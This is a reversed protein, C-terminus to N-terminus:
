GRPGMSAFPRSPCGPAPPCKRSSLRAAGNFRHGYLRLAPRRGSKRSSLRAAGNFGCHCLWRWPWCPPMEALEAERGWQLLSLRGVAPSVHCIIEALEAERGWQLVGAALAGRLRTAYKRSSLRAAGNFCVAAKRFSRCTAPSKRSSLRAAGNFRSTRWGLASICRSIEALEAERGWQLM